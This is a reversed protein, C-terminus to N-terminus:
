KPIEIITVELTAPLMESLEIITQNNIFWSSQQDTCVVDWLITFTISKYQLSETFLFYWFNGFTMVADLREFLGPTWQSNQDIGRGNEIRRLSGRYGRSGNTSSWNATKLLWVEGLGQSQTSLEPIAPRFSGESKLPIAVSTLRTERKRINSSPQPKLFSHGCNEDRGAWKNTHFKHQFSPWKILFQEDACHLWIPFLHLVIQASFYSTSFMVVIEHPVVKWVSWDMQSSRIHHSVHTM